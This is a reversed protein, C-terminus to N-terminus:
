AVLCNHSEEISIYEIIQRKLLWDVTAHGQIIHKLDDETINIYPNGNEDKHVIIMPTLLRGYDTYIHLEQEDNEYITTKGWVDPHQRRYQRLLRIAEAIHVKQIFGIWFGNVFVKILSFNAVEENRFEDLEYLYEPIIHHVTAITESSPTATTIITMSSLSKIKGAKESTETSQV